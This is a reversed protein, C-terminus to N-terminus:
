KIEQLTSNELANSVAEAVMKQIEIKQIKLQMFQQISYILVPVFLISLVAFGGTIYARWIKLSRVSGNTYKVQELISQHNRNNEDFKENILTKLGEIRETLIDSKDSM